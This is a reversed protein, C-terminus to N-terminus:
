WGAYLLQEPTLNDRMWNLIVSSKRNGNEDFPPPDVNLNLKSIAFEPYGELYERKYFKNYYRIMIGISNNNEFFEDEDGNIKIRGNWMKQIIIANKNMLHQIYNNVYENDIIRILKQCDNYSLYLMTEIILDSPLNDMNVRNALILM